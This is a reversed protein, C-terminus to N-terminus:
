KRLKQVQLIPTHVSTSVWLAPWSHSVHHPTHPSWLERGPGGVSPCAEPCQFVPFLILYLDDLLSSVHTVSHCVVPYLVWNLDTFPQFVSQYNKFHLVPFLVWILDDLPKFVSKCWLMNRTSYLHINLPLSIIRVQKHIPGALYVCDGDMCAGYYGSWDTDKYGVVEM